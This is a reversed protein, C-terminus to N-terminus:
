KCYKSYAEKAGPYELAASLQFDECAGKVNKLGIKLLGRNYYAQGFDKDLSIANGYAKLAEETKGMQHLARGKMFSAMAPAGPIEAARNAFLLANTFNKKKHHLNALSLLVQFNNPDLELAQEFDAKAGEFNKLEEYARGRHYLLRVDNPLYKLENSYEALAEEYKKDGFLRDGKSVKQESCSFFLLVFALSLLISANKKM